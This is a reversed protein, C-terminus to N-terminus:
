NGAFASLTISTRAEEIPLQAGAVDITLVNVCVRRVLELSAQPEATLKILKMAALYRFQSLTMQGQVDSLLRLNGLTRRADADTIWRALADLRLSHRRAMEIPTCPSAFLDVILPDDAAPDNM